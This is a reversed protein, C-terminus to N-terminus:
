LWKSPSLIVTNGLQELVILDKDGSLIFDAQVHQALDLFKDDKPDRCVSLKSEPEVLESNYKYWAMFQAAKSSIIRKKLNPYQLAEKLEILISNSIFLQIKGNVTQKILKDLITTERTMLHSIIINNDIIVKLM